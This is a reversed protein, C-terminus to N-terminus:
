DPAFDYRQRARLPKDRRSADAPIRNLRAANLGAERMRDKAIGSDETVEVDVVAGTEDFTLIWEFHGSYEAPPIDHRYNTRGVIYPMAPNAYFNAAALNAAVEIRGSAAPLGDFKLDFRWAGPEAELEALSLDRCEVVMGGGGRRREVTEVLVGAADRIEMRVTAGQEPFDGSKWCVQHPRGPDLLLGLAQARAGSAPDPAQWLFEIHGHISSRDMAAAPQGPLLMGFSCLAASVLSTPRDM